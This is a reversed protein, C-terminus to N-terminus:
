IAELLAADPDNEVICDWVKRLDMWGTASDEEGCHGMVWGPTKRASLLNRWSLISGMIAFIKAGDADSLGNLSTYKRVLMASRVFDARCDPQAALPEVQACFEQPTVQAFASGAMGFVAIFVARMM